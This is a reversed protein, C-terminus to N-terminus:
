LWRLRFGGYGGFRLGFGPDGRGGPDFAAAAFGAGPIKEAFAIDGDHGSGPRGTTASTGRSGAQSSSGTLGAKRRRRCQEFSVPLGFRNLRHTGIIRGHSQAHAHLTVDSQSDFYVRIAFDGFGLDGLATAGAEVFLREFGDSLGTKLGAWFSPLFTGASNM